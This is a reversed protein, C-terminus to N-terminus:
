YPDWGSWYQVLLSAILKCPGWWALTKGMGKRRLVYSSWGSNSGPIKRWGLASSLWRLCKHSLEDAFLIGSRGRKRRKATPVDSSHVFFMKGEKFGDLAANRALRICVQWAIELGVQFWLDQCIIWLFLNENRGEGRAGRRGDGARGPAGKSGLFLHFLWRSLLTLPSLWGWPLWACFFRSLSVRGALASKVRVSCISIWILVWFLKRTTFIVTSWADASETKEPGGGTSSRQLRQSHKENPPLAM